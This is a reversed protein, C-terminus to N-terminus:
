DDSGPGSGPKTHRAHLAGRNQSLELYYEWSDALPQDKVRHCVLIFDLPSVGPHLQCMSAVFAEIMAANRLMQSRVVEAVIDM